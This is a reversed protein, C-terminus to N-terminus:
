PFNKILFNFWQDVNCLKSYISVNIIFLIQLLCSHVFLNAETLDKKSTILICVTLHSHENM